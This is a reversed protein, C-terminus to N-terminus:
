DAGQLRLWKGEHFYYIVSAKGLFANDIGEHDLPEPPRPGDFAQAYRRIAAPPAVDIRRSFAIGEPGMGQLYNRDAASDLSDSPTSADEPYVLIVSTDRISCLVAWDARGVGTFTGRIVNHREDPSHDHSPQPIRCGRRALDASVPAPLAPFRDPALRVIASDARAWVDQVDAIAATSDAVSDTASGATSDARATQAKAADNDAARCAAVFLLIGCVGGFQHM